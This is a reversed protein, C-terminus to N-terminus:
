DAVREEKNLPNYLSNRFKNYTEIDVIGGCSYLFPNFYITLGGHVNERKIVNNSELEKFVEYLKTKKIGVLECIEEINPHKGNVVVTNTPFYLYPQFTAIFGKSFISLKSIDFMNRVDTRFVKTFLYKEKIRICKYKEGNRAKILRLNNELNIMSLGQHFDNFKNVIDNELSEKIEEISIIEGTSIDILQGDIFEYQNNDLQM